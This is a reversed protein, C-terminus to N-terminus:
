FDSRFRNLFFAAIYVLSSLSELFFSSFYQVRERAIGRCYKVLAKNPRLEHTDWVMFKSLKIQEPSQFYDLVATRALHLEPSHVEITESQSGFTGLSLGYGSFQLVM